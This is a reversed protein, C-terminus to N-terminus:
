MSNTAQQIDRLKKPVYNAALVGIFIFIAGIWEQLTMREGLFAFALIAAFIPELSFIFGASVATTHQQAVAQVIVAFASAVLALMILSGWGLASVPLKLPEIMLAGIFSFVGCFFLQYVGVQLSDIKQTVRNIMIIHIAYLFATILCLIMGESITFTGNISFLTLGIITITGGIVVQRSPLQRTYMAVLMPVFIVSTAILFGAVSADTIRLAYGFLICIVAMLLGLVASAVITEKNTKKIKKWFVLATIFFALLFRYAILTFPALEAVATKTFLYSSGWALSVLVLLFNAKKVSM